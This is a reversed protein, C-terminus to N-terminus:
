LPRTLFHRGAHDCRCLLSLAVFNLKFIGPGNPRSIIYPVRFMHIHKKNQISLFHFSHATYFTKIRSEKLLQRGDKTYLVQPCNERDAAIRSIGKDTTTLDATNADPMAIAYRFISHHIIQCPIYFLRLLMTIYRTNNPIDPNNQNGSLGMGFVLM